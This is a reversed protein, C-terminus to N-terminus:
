RQGWSVTESPLRGDEEAPSPPAEFIHAYQHARTLPLRNRRPRAFLVQFLQLSGYEFAAVSGALYMRWMRVFREDYMQRITENSQEYRALWHRLTEAYHLRINEVDLVSFEHREFIASMQGLSPPCAGPFIRREIWPDLPQRRNRGITHILGRGDASLCRDIVNGLRRYNATGVHELMGISVFVDCSGTIKRWDELIFEVRDELGEARARRRAEAVQERSINYARVRVGYRKAMHLAFGGWGCGAEIVTEGPRLELKRCVHDMKACQAQELSATPEEFYACTYLLNEDLWLRYFDNGIDYHHHINKQSASLTNRGGWHLLKAIYTFWRTGQPSLAASEAVHGMLTELDGDVELRGDCYAEPFQFFPDSLIRWFTARDGIRFRITEAASNPDPQGGAVIEEGTWLVAVIPPNGIAALLRRLLWKEFRTVAPRPGRASADPSSTGISSAHAVNNTSPTLGDVETAAASFRVNSDRSTSQFSLSKM